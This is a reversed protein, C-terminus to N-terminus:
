GAGIRRLISVQLLDFLRHFRRVEIMHWSPNLDSVSKSNIYAQM